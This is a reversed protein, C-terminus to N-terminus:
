NELFDINTIKELEKLQEKLISIINNWKNLKNKDGETYSKIKKKDSVIKYYTELSNINNFEEWVFSYQFDYYFNYNLKNFKELTHLIKAVQRLVNKQLLLRSNSSDSSKNKDFLFEEIEAREEQEETVEQEEQEEKLVEKIVEKKIGNVYKIIEKRQKKVSGYDREFFLCDSFTGREEDFDPCGERSCSYFGDENIKDELAFM